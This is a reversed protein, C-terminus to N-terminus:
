GVVYGEQNIMGLLEAIPHYTIQKNSMADNLLNFTCKKLM